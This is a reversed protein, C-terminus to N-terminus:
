ATRTAILVAFADLADHVPGDPVVTSCSPPRAPWTSSTPRAEDMAPHARLLTLAEALLADDTM